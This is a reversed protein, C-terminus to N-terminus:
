LNSCILVALGPPLPISAVEVGGRTVVLFVQGDMEVCALEVGDEGDPPPPPTDEAAVIQYVKGTNGSPGLTDAALVYLEGTQDQGFSRLFHRFNGYEMNSIILEEFPLLQSEAPSAAFLAGPFHVGGNVGAEGGSFSGFVYLGDLAPALSGRYVYGGVITTAYGGPQKANPVEIVPDLLPAGADPHEAGVQDPCDEPPDVPNEADFCHTAEKVNWGYNGGKVTVNVEEWLEQGADQTILAHDDGMDFSMRWPNRFGYAYIEDFGARGVFPNDDPIGYPLDGEMSDVDVRIINGLLNQEVDQGNGGANAEYWDEVHGIGEDDRNGGDGMSLYLYGDPGFAVTGGNHNSYPWDEELLIRESAPDAQNPNDASVQFESLRNTHDYNDPAEPRLPVSYYVYFRGNEAYNPHFALGLLGREDVEPNLDVIESQLDLFPEDLLTGDPMLIVILGIQDVIFRRGSEDAPETLALPSTLGDVLQDLTVTPGDRVPTEAPDDSDPMGQSPDQDGQAAPAVGPLLAVLLALIALLSVRRSHM